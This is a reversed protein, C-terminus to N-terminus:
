STNFEFIYKFFRWSICVSCKQRGIQVAKHTFEAVRSILIWVVGTTFRENWRYAGIWSMIYQVRCYFFGPVCWIIYFYDITAFCEYSHNVNVGPSPLISLRIVSTFHPQWPNSILIMEAFNDSAASLRDIDQFYHKIDTRQFNFSYHYEVYANVNNHLSM